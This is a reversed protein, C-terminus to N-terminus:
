EEKVARVQTMVAMGFRTTTDAALAAMESAVAVIEADDTLGAAILSDRAEILTWEPLRKAEGERLVPQAISVECRSFGASMVLNTLRLGILPDAGTLAVGARYLEFCRDFAASRPACFVGEFDGDEAVLTGGPRVLAAMERLAADPDPLHMLLFRCFVIDYAGRELGTDCAPAAIFRVNGIGLDSARRAAVRTQDASIDVGIAEGNPAVLSAMICTVVGIGCGVDVVRQGPRISASELLRETDAGHVAHVLELRHEAEDGTALVYGRDATQGM